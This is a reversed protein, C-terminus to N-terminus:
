GGDGHGKRASARISVQVQVCRAHRRSAREQTSTDAQQADEDSEAIARCILKQTIPAGHNSKSVTEMRAKRAVSFYPYAYGFCMFFMCQVWFLARFRLPPTDIGLARSLSWGNLRYCIAALYERKAFLPPSDAEVTLINNALLRSKDSPAIEAVVISETMARARSVSSMWDVPTGMIYGIWRWLALYDMAQQESVVVGQRPLSLWVIACSYVSITGICHLDNIPVGLTEMDFYGQKEKELAMIRRRVAAHLLRVRVSSVFGKGGPKVADINEIVDVFHQLTELLRRRVVRVGFGGTRGLTEVVRYSGMGGILSNYM